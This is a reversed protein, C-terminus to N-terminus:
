VAQCLLTITHQHFVSPNLNVNLFTLNGTYVIGINDDKLREVQAKLDGLTTLQAEMVLTRESLAM